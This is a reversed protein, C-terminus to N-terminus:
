HRPPSCPLPATHWRGLTSALFLIGVLFMLVFNLLLANVPANLKRNVTSWRAPFIMANDLGLSLVMMSAVQQCATSGIPLMVIIAITFAIAAGASHTAQRWIEFLVFGSPTTLATQVDSISYLVTLAFALSSVFSISLAAVITKPVVSAPNKVEAVLHTAGDLPMFAIIPGALGIM